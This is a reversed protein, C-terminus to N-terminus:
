TLRRFTVRCSIRSIAPVSQQWGGYRRLLTTQCNWAACTTELEAYAPHRVAFLYRPM